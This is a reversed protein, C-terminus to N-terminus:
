YKVYKNKIKDLAEDMQQVLSDKKTEDSEKEILGNFKDSIYSQEKCMAYYNDLGLKFYLNLDWDFGDAYTKGWELESILPFRFYESDIRYKEPIYVPNLGEFEKVKCKLWPVPPNEMVKKVLRPVIKIEDPHIDVGISDHVTLCLKSKLHYKYFLNRLVILSTNTMYSASGQVIANFSQRLAQEGKISKYNKAEPLRRYNGQMTEVYGYRKAFSQVALISKQVQPMASLVKDMIVKAKEPTTNLQRSLGEETIGYISGFGVRKAAQRQDKTVEDITVNFAISANRKHIDAGNMLAETMGGDKSFLAAIFIELSKYDANLFIGNKFRSINLRKIPYEYIPSNIDHIPKPIQQYNM